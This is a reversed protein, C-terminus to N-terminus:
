VETSGIWAKGLRATAPAFSQITFRAEELARAVGDQDWGGQPSELSVLVRSDADSVVSLREFRSEAPLRVLGDGDGVFGIGGHNVYVGGEWDGGRRDQCRDDEM